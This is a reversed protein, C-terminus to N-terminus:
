SVKSEILAVDGEEVGSVVEVSVGDSFGTVVETKLPDGEERKILLYQKGSETIVARNSVILVDEQQRTIFTVEGSMGEFVMDPPDEMLVTITYNVTSAGSRLPTVSIADIYGVFSKKEYADLTIEAKQGMSLSTIDEQSIVASMYVTGMDAITLITGNESLSDRESVSVSMITGGYPATVVGSAIQAELQSMELELKQVSLKKSSVTQDLSMVTIDYIAQANESEFLTEEMEQQAELKSLTYSLKNSEFEQEGQEYKDELSEIKDTLEEVDSQYEKYEAQYARKATDAAEEAEDLEEQLADLDGSGSDVAEDYATQAAQAAEEAAEWAAKLNTLNYSDGLSNLKATYYEMDDEIDDLDYYSDEMSNKLDEVSMDYTSEASVGLELSEELKYKASILGSKQDLVAQTYSIQASQYDFQLDLLEEKLDDTDLSILIDGKEVQQGAKVYVTAVDASVPSRITQYGITATGTESIGVTLNGRTIAAEKYIVSAQAAAKESQVRTYAYVGGGGAILIALALWIWRGLRSTNEM